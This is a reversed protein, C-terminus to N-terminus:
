AALGEIFTLMAALAQEVDAEIVDEAPNHSIGGTCRIFLMATPALAAMVMADHGAGSVLCRPEQGTAAVAAALRDILAPDCPSAALMQTEEAVVTVGRSTAIAHLAALIEGTAADREADSGSRVDVTFDVRGPVVNTAGPMVTMRGVTAVLDSKGARAVSEIALIAEAAATLADRRLHMANTGAHGPVGTVNVTIRRQGAIATVVGLALGEAELLPGQEIHAELYAAVSGPAYAAAAFATTALGVSALAADLTVGDGDTIALAAPDLTGAVARSTLMSAPFRSGEEDGFAAVDIAFPLRRGKAALAAICEIGLMIGLPGDFAGGDRVSDIHSGILLLPADSTGKYRGILNGAPDTRVEMGAEEMWDALRACTTQHAPTLYPRTLADQEESFPPRTLSRCREVARAGGASITQASTFTAQSM